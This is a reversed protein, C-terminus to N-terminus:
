SGPQLATRFKYRDGRYASLVYEVPIDQDTYTLRELRLVAAPPFLELLELETANALSAELTQEARVLRLGYDSELVYYLSEVAFDYRLL